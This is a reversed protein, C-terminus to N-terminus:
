IQDKLKLKLNPWKLGDCKRKRSEPTSKSIIKKKEKNRKSNNARRKKNHNRL